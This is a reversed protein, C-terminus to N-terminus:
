SHLRAGPKLGARPQSYPPTLPSPGLPHRQRAQGSHSHLATKPSPQRRRIRRTRWQIGLPPIHGHESSCRLQVYQGLYRRDRRLFGRHAPRQALQGRHFPPDSSQDTITHDVYNQKAYPSIVLLPLRPGYGCRGQAHVATRPSAPFLLPEAAAHAMEQSSDASTASQNVIPPMQHDYWGDSDDYAIVVATSSWSPQSQLFNIVHVIFQQEDIRIPTDPTAM